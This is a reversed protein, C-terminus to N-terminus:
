VILAIYITIIEAIIVLSLNTLITSEDSMVFTPILKLESIILTLLNRSSYQLCPLLYISKGLNIGQKRIRIDQDKLDRNKNRMREISDKM